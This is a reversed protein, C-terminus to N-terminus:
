KPHRAPKSAFSPADRWKGPRRSPKKSDNTFDIVRRNFGGKNTNRILM